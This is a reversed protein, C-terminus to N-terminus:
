HHAIAKAHMPDYSLWGGTNNRDECSKDFPIGINIVKRLGCCESDVCISSTMSRVRYARNVRTGSDRAYRPYPKLRSPEPSSIKAPKIGFSM